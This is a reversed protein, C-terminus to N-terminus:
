PRWNPAAQSASCPKTDRTAAPVGGARVDLHLTMPGARSARQQGALDKQGATRTRSYTPVRTVSALDLYYVVDDGWTVRKMPARTGSAAARSACTRLAGPRIKLPNGVIRAPWTCRRGDYSITAPSDHEVLDDPTHEAVGTRSAGVRAPASVRGADFANAATPVDMSRTPDCINSSITATNAAFSDQTTTGSNGGDRTACAAHSAANLPEAVKPETQVTTRVTKPAVPAWANESKWLWAFVQM